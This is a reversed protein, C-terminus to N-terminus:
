NKLDEEIQEPKSFGSLEMIKNAVENIEFPELLKEVIQLPDKIEYAEHLEPKQFDKVSNYILYCNALMKDEIKDTTMDIAKYVISKSPSQITISGGLSEIYIDEIKNQQAEKEAKKAILDALTLKIDKKKNAM